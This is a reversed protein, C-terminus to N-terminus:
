KPCCHNSIFGDLLWLGWWLAVFPAGGAAPGTAGTPGSGHWLDQMAQFPKWLNVVPCFYWGVSGGPSFRASPYGLSDLNGYARYEWMFFLVMSAVIAALHLIGVITERQENEQGHQVLDAPANEGDVVGAAQAQRFEYLFDLKLSSSWLSVCAVLAEVVLLALAARARPGPSIFPRKPVPPRVPPMDDAAVTLEFLSDNGPRPADPAGPIPPPTPIMFAARCKPCDVWQGPASQAIEVKEHCHKCEVLM